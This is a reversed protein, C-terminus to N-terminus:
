TADEFHAFQIVGNKFEAAAPVEFGMAQCAASINVLRGGALMVMVNHCEILLDNLDGPEVDKADFTGDNVATLFKAATM